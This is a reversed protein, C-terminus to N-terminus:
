FGRLRLSLLNRKWSQFNDFGLGSSMPKLNERAAEFIDNLWADGLLVAASMYGYIHDMTIEDAIECVLFWTRQGDTGPRLELKFGSPYLYGTNAAYAHEATLDDLQVSKLEQLKEFKPVLYAVELFYDGKFGSQRFSFIKDPTVELCAQDDRHIFEPFENTLRQWTTALQKVKM